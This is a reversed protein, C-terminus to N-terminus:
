TRVAKKPLGVETNLNEGKFQVPCRGSSNNIKLFILQSKNLKTNRKM